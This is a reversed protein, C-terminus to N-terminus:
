AEAPRGPTSPIAREAVRGRAPARSMIGATLYCAAGLALAVYSNTFVMVIMVTCSGIVSAAGNIAWAWPVLDADVRGLDRVASALPIGMPLGCASVVVLTMAFRAADPWQITAHVAPFITLTVVLLIAAIAACASARQANVREVLLSGVGTSILLAVLVVSFSYTPHGLYLGLIQTLPVELAMFGVGVCAFFVMDRVHLRARTKAMRSRVLLPLLILVFSFLASMGLSVPLLISSSQSIEGVAWDGQKEYSTEHLPNYYQFLYPNADTVESILYPYRAQFERPDASRVYAAFPTDVTRHPAYLLSWQQAEVHAELRGVDAETLANKSILLYGWVRHGNDWSRYDAIPAVVAVHQEPHRAGEERLAALATVFMRMNERPPNFLWRRISILGGDKLVGLYDRMAEKTYLFNETLAYAGAASAAWTDIAHMIVADFTRGSSRVVHRGEGVAMTITPDVFLEGNAARDTTTVWRAITPNIDVALVNSAGARRAEAVQPGGGSGIIAIAPRAATLVYAPEVVAKQREEDNWEITPTSADGDLVYMGEIHDTRILHNWEFKLVKAGPKKRRFNEFNRLSGPGVMVAITALCGVVAVVTGVRRPAEIRGFPVWAAFVLLASALFAIPPSGYKMLGVALLCGLGAGILDGAYLTGMRESFARFARVLVVGGVFNLAVMFLSCWTLYQLADPGVLKILRQGDENLQLPNAVQLLSVPTLLVLAALWRSLSQDLRERPVPRLAAYTGAAGLGLLSLAIALFVFHYFLKYGILRTFSIQLIILACAVLGVVSRIRVPLPVGARYQTRM